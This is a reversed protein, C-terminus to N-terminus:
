YKKGQPFSMNQNKFNIHKALGLLLLIKDPSQTIFVLKETGVSFNECDFYKHKLSTERYGM